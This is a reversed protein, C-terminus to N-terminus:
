IEEGLLINMATNATLYIDSLLPITSLPFSPFYKICYNQWNYIDFSESVINFVQDDQSIFLSSYKPTLGSVLPFVNNLTAQKIVAPTHLVSEEHQKVHDTPYMTITLQRNAKGAATSITHLFIYSALNEISIDFVLYDTSELTNLCNQPPIQSKIAALDLSLLPSGLFVTESYPSTPQTLLTKIKAKDTADLRQLSYQIVKRATNTSKTSRGLCLEQLTKNSIQIRPM